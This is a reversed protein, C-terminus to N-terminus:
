CPPSPSARRVLLCNVSCSLLILTPITHWGIDRTNSFLSANVVALSTTIANTKVIFTLIWDVAGKTREERLAYFIFSLTIIGNVLATSALWVTLVYSFSGIQLM